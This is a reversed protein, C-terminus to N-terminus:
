FVMIDNDSLSYIYNSRPKCGGGGEGGRGCGRGGARGRDSSYRESNVRARSMKQTATIGGAPPPAVGVDAGM